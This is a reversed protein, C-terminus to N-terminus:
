GPLLSWYGAFAAHSGGDVYLSHVEAASAAQSVAAFAAELAAASAAEPRTDDEDEITVITRDGIAHFVNMQTFADTEMGLQELYTSNGDIPSSLFTSRRGTGKGKGKSRAVLCDRILHSPSGCGHCLMQRGDAGNPTGGGPNSHTKGYFGKGTGREGGM